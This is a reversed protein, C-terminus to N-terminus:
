YDSYSLVFEMKPAFWRYHMEYWCLLRLQTDKKSDRPKGCNEINWGYTMAQFAGPPWWRSPLPLTASSPSPHSHIPWRPLQLAMDLKSINKRRVGCVQRIAPSRFIRFNLFSSLMENPMWQVGFTSYKSSRQYVKSGVHMKKCVTERSAKQIRKYEHCWPWAAAVLESSASITLPVHLFDYFVHLKM